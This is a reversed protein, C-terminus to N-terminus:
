LVLSRRIRSDRRKMSETNESTLHLFPYSVFRSHSQENCFPIRDFHSLVTRGEMRVRRQLPLPRNGCQSRLSFSQLKPCSPFPHISPFFVNFICAFPFIERERESSPLFTPSPLSPTPRKRPLLEPFLHSSSSFSIVSMPLIQEPTCVISHIFSPCPCHIMWQLHTLFLWSSNYCSEESYEM